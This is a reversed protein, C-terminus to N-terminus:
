LRHQWRPIKPSIRRSFNSMIIVEFSYNYDKRVDASALKILTKNQIDPSPGMSIVEPEIRTDARHALAVDYQEDYHKQFGDLTAFIVRHNRKYLELGLTIHGYAFSSPPLLFIFSYVADTTPAEITAFDAYFSRTCFVLISFFFFLMM